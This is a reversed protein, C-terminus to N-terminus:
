FVLRFLIGDGGDFTLGPFSFRRSVEEFGLERHLAISATNRANAFFWAEAARRRIWDLRM